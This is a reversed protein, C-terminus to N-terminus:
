NEKAKYALNTMFSLIKQKVSYLIRSTKHLNYKGTILFNDTSNIFVALTYGALQRINTICTLLYYSLAMTVRSRELQEPDRGM